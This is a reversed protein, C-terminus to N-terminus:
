RVGQTDGDVEIALAPNQAKRLIARRCVRQAVDPDRQDGATADHDAHQDGRQDAREHPRAQVRPSQRRLKGSALPRFLSEALRLVVIPLDEFGRRRPDVPGRRLPTVDVDVGGTGADEPVLARLCQNCANGVDGGLHIRIGPISLDEGASQRLM